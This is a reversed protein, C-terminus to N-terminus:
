QGKNRNEFRKAMSRRFFFMFVCIAAFIFSLTSGGDPIDLKVVGDIVLVVALILFLFSTYRLYKM